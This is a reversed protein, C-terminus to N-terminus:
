EKKNKSGAKKKTTPKSAKPKKEKHEPVSKVKALQKPKEVKVPEKALRADNPNGVSVWKGDISKFNPM